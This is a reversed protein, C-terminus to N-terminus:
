SKKSKSRSPPIPKEPEAPKTEELAKALAAEDVEGFLTNFQDRDELTLQAKMQRAINWREVPKDNWEEHACELLVVAKSFDHSKENGPELYELNLQPSPYGIAKLEALTREKTKPTIPLYTTRILPEPDGNADRLVEFGAKPDVTDRCVEEIRCRISFQFNGKSSKGVGWSLPKAKYLGTPVMGM